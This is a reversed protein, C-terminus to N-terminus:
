VFYLKNNIEISVAEQKFDQKLEKAKKLIFDIDNNSLKLTFVEIVAVSENILEGLQESYYSGQAMYTTCGGFRRSFAMKNWAIASNFLEDNIKENGNYTSPVYFKFSEGLGELAQLSKLVTQEKKM